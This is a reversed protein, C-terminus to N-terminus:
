IDKFESLLGTNEAGRICELYTTNIDKTERWIDHFHCLLADASGEHLLDIDVPPATNSNVFIRSDIYVFPDFY